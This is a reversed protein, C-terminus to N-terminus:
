SLPVPPNVTLIGNGRFTTVNGSISVMTIIDKNSGYGCNASDAASLTLTFQGFAANVIAHQSNPFVVPGVGNSGLIQSQFMAGTINVPNGRGDTATLNLVVNDSQTFAIGMNLDGYIATTSQGILTANEIEIIVPSLTGVLPVNNIEYAVGALVNQIGPDISTGGSGGTALPFELDTPTYLPNISTYTGDTYVAVSAIYQHAATVTFLGYYTGNVMLSLVLNQVFVASGTTTDYIAARIFLGSQAIYSTYSLVSAGTGFPLDSPSYGSDLSTFTGDTYVAINALYNKASNPTFSFWYSGNALNALGSTQVLVPSGSSMDYIKAAVSLANSFDFATYSLIM